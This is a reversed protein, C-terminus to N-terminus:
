ERLMRGTPATGGQPGHGKWAVPAPARPRPSRRRLLNM